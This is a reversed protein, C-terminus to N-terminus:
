EVEEVKGAEILIKAIEVPINAIEGKTFPGLKEGEETLFEGVEEKFLVFINKKTEKKEKNNILEKIKKNEEEIAKVISDFMEKEFDLMSEYDRKSIGTEVAIFALNLIKKKRRNMLEKFISIASELQKKTKIIQESFIDDSKETLKSKEEFYEYVEQIFNKQLTQLQESYKEKRAIELLDNFTIM